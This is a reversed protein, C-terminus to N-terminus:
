PESACPAYPTNSPCPYIRAQPRPHQFYLPKAFDYVKSHFRHCLEKFIRYKTLIIKFFKCM